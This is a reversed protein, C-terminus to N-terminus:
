RNMWFEKLWSQVALKKLHFQSRQRLKKQLLILVQLFNMLANRTFLKLIKRLVMQLTTLPHFNLQVNIRFSQLIPPSSQSCHLLQHLQQLAFVTVAVLFVQFNLLSIDFSVCFYSLPMKIGKLAIAASVLIILKM